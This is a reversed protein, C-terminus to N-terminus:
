NLATIMHVYLQVKISHNLFNPNFKFALISHSQLHVQLWINCLFLCASLPPSWTLISICKFATILCTWLHVNFSLALQRRSTSPQWWSVRKSICKSADFRCVPPFHDHSNSSVSPPWSHSLALNFKSAMISRSLLLHIHYIELHYILLFAGQSSYSLTNTLKDKDFHLSNLVILEASVVSVLQTCSVTLRQTISYKDYATSSPTNLTHPISYNTNVEALPICVCWCFTFHNPLWLWVVWCSQVAVSIRGSVGLHDWIPQICCSTSEPVGLSSWWHEQISGFHHFQIWFYWLSHITAKLISGFWVILIHLNRLWQSYQRRRQFYKPAGGVQLWVRQSHNNYHNYWITCNL